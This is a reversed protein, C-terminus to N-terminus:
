GARWAEFLPRYEPHEGLFLEDHASLYRLAVLPIPSRAVHVDDSRASRDESGPYFQGCTLGRRLLRPKVEDVVADLGHDAGAHPLLLLLSKLSGHRADRAPATALFADAERLIAAAMAAADDVVTAFLLRARLSPPVFPCLPGPRGLEPKPRSVEEVIWRLLDQGPEEGLRESAETV